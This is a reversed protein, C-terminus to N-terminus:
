SAQQLLEVDVTVTCECGGDVLQCDIILAHRVREFDACGPETCEAVNDPHVVLTGHCHDLDSTCSACEM